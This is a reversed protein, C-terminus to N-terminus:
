LLCPDWDVKHSACRYTGENPGQIGLFAAGTTGFLSGPLPGLAHSRYQLRYQVECIRDGGHKSARGKVSTDVTDELVLLDLVQPQRVEIHGCVDSCGGHTDVFIAAHPTVDPGTGGVTGVQGWEAVGLVPVQQHVPTVNVVNWTLSGM